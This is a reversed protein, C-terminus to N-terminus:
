LSSASPGERPAGSVQSPHSKSLRTLSNGVQPHPSVPTFRAAPQSRDPIPRILEGRLGLGSGLAKRTASSTPPISETSRGYAPVGCPRWIAPLSLQGGERLPSFCTCALNRRPLSPPQGSHGEGAAGQPAAARLSPVRLGPIGRKSRTLRRREATFALGM